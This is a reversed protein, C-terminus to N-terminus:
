SLLLHFSFVLLILYVAIICYESSLDALTRLPPGSAVPGFGVSTAAQVRFTYSTCCTLTDIQYSPTTIIASDILDGVGGLYIEVRYM